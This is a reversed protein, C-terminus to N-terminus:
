SGGESACGALVARYVARALRAGWPSRPGGFAHEPGEVPCAICLADSATGTAPVGSEWLAQAKAETVTAVANVLAAPSLREPVFAVVNITGPRAGHATPDGSEDEAAWTPHTIGVSVDARVGEDHESLVKRLDVATLMGVGPGALGFAAALETLHVDPDDRDYAESVQANVAWARHGLGGGLPASSIVLLPETFRWVLVPRHVGADDHEGREFGGTLTDRPVTERVSAPDAV